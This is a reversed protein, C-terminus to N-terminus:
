AEVGTVDYGAEIILAKIKTVGDIDNMAGVTVNKNPIDTQVNLEPYVDLIAKTITQTCHGCNMGNVSFTPM